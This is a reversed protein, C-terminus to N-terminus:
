DLEEQDSITDIRSLESNEEAQNQYEDQKNLEAFANEMPSQTENEPLEGIYHQRERFIKGPRAVMYSIIEHGLIDDEVYIVMEPFSRSEHKYFPSRKRFKCRRPKGTKPDRIMFGIVHSVRDDSKGAPEESLEEARRMYEEMSMPPFKPDNPDFKEDKNQMVHSLYHQKLNEPNLFTAENLFQEDFIM